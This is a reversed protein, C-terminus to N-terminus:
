LRVTFRYRSNQYDPIQPRFIQVSPDLKRFWEETYFLRVLNHNDPIKVRAYKERKVEDPVDMILIRRGVRQMERFAAAAAEYDPFYQFISHCFVKDFIQGAFPLMEARGIVRQCIVGSALQLMQPNVDVGVVSGAFPYLQETILGAGCGVDLLSDAPDLGLLEVATKTLFNMGMSTLRALGHDYGSITFKDGGKVGKHQYYEVWDQYTEM